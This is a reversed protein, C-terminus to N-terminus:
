RVAVAPPRPVGRNATSGRRRRTLMTERALQAALCRSPMLPPWSSGPGGMVGCPGAGRRRRHRVRTTGADRGPESDM